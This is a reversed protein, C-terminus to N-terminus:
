SIVYYDNESKINLLGQRLRPILFNMLSSRESAVSRKMRILKEWMIWGMPFPLAIKKKHHLTLKVM